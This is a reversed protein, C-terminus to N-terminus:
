SEIEGCGESLWYQVYGDELSAEKGNDLENNKIPKDNNKKNKKYCTSPETVKDIVDNM